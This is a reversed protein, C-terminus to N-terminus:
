LGILLKHKEIIKIASKMSENSLKNKNTNKLFTALTDCLKIQNFQPDMQKLADALALLPRQNEAVVFKNNKVISWMNEKRIAKLEVKTPKAEEKLYHRSLSHADQLYKKDKVDDKFYIKILPRAQNTKICHYLPYNSSRSILQYYLNRLHQFYHDTEKKAFFNSSNFEISQNYLFSHYLKQCDTFIDIIENKNIDNKKIMEFTKELSYGEGITSSPNIHEVNFHHKEIFGFETVKVIGVGIM